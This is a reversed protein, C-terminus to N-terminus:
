TLQSLRGKYSDFATLQASEEHLLSGLAAYLWGGGLEQEHFSALPVALLTQPSPLDLCECAARSIVSM